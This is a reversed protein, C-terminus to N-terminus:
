DTHPAAAIRAVANFADPTYRNPLPEGSGEGGARCWMCCGFRDLDEPEALEGCGPCPAPAPHYAFHEVEEATLPRTMAEHVSPGLEWRHCDWYDSWTSADSDPLTDHVDPNQPLSSM